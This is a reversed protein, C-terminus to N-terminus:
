HRMNAGPFTCIVDIKLVLNGKRQLQSIAKYGYFYPNTNAGVDAIYVFPQRM